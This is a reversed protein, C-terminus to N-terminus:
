DLPMYGSVVAFDDHCAVTLNVRQGPQLAGFDAGATSKTVAWAREDDGALYALGFAPLVDTVTASVMKLVQATENM